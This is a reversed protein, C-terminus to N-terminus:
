PARTSGQVRMLPPRLGIAACVLLLAHRHARVAHLPGV